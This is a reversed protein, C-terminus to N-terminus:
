NLCRENVDWSFEDAEGYAAGVSCVKMIGIRTWKASCRAYGQLVM